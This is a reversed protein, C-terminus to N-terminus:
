SMGSPRGEAQSCICLRLRRPLRYIVCVVCLCPLVFRWAQADKPLGSMLFVVSAHFYRVNRDCCHQSKAGRRCKRLGICLRLLLGPHLLGPQAFGHEVCGYAVGHRYDVYNLVVLCELAVLGHCPRSYVVQVCLRELLHLAHREVEAPVHHAVHRELNFVDAGHLVGYQAELDGEALNRAVQCQGDLRECARQAAAPQLVEGAVYAVVAREGEVPAYRRAVHLNFGYSRRLVAVEAKVVM